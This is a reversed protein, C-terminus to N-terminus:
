LMMALAAAAKQIWAGTHLPPIRPSVPISYFAPM